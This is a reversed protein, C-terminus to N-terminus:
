RLPVRSGELCAIPYSHDSVHDTPIALEIPILKDSAPKLYEEKINFEKQTVLLVRM